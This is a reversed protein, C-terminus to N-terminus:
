PDDRAAFPADPAAGTPMYGVPTMCGHSRSLDALGAHL